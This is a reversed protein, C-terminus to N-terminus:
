LMQFIMIEQTLSKERDVIMEMIRVLALIGVLVAIEMIEALEVKGIFHLM